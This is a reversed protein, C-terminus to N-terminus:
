DDLSFMWRKLAYSRKRQQGANGEGPDPHASEIVNLDSGSGNQHTTTVQEPKVACLLQQHVHALIDIL